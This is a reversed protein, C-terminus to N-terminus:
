QLIEIKAVFAWILFHYPIQAGSGLITLIQFNSKILDVKGVRNQCAILWKQIRMKLSIIAFTINKQGLIGMYSFLLTNPDWIRFFTLIKFKKNIYDAKDIRNQYPRQIKMKISFIAFLQNKAWFAWILFNPGLRGFIGVFKLMVKKILDKKDIRNQCAILWKQIKM